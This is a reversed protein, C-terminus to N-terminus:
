NRWAPIRNEPNVFLHIWLSTYTRTYVERTELLSNLCAEEESVACSDELCPNSKAACTETLAKEFRACVDLYIKKKDPLLLSALDLKSLNGEWAFGMLKEPTGVLKDFHNKAVADRLFPREVNDPKLITRTKLNFEYKLCGDKESEPRISGNDNVFCFLTM